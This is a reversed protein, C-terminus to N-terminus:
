VQLVFVKFKWKWAISITDHLEDPDREASASAVTKLLTKLTKIVAARRLKMLPTTSEELHKENQWTSSNQQVVYYENWLAISNRYSRHEVRATVRSMTSVKWAHPFISQICITLYRNFNKTAMAQIIIRGNAYELEMLYGDPAPFSRFLQTPFQCLGDTYLTAIMMYITGSM